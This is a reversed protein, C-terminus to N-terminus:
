EGGLRRQRKQFSLVAELLHNSTFEPWLVNTIFLETYSIQWLLFNSIRMEGSTRILLEPDQWAGTDLYRSILEETLGEKQIVQNQYDQCIRNVARAIENRAGYNIALVMQVCDCHETAKKTNKVTQYVSEPLKSLDGITQFRIQDGLMTPLQEILYSELLLMLADVEQKARNWNETSFTYFTVIKIGLAKAARMIDMLVDAGAKHGQMPTKALNKAWRRNGDPIIAIHKPIKATELLALQEPSYIPM